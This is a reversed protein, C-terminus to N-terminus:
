GNATLQEIRAEAAPTLRDFELRLGYDPTIGSVTATLQCEGDPLDLIAQVSIGRAPWVTTAPAIRLGGISLDVTESRAHNWTRQGIPLWALRIPLRVPLRPHGRRQIFEVPGIIQLRVINAIAWCAVPMRAAGDPLSIVATGHATSLRLGAVQRGAPISIRVTDATQDVLQGTMRDGYVELEVEQRAKLLPLTPVPQTDATERAGRSRFGFTM